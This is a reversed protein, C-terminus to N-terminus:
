WTLIVGGKENLSERASFKGERVLQDQWKNYLQEIREPTSYGQCAKHFQEYYMDSLAKRM